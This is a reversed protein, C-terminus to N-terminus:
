IVGSGRKILDIKAGLDTISKNLSGLYSLNHFFYKPNQYIFQEYKINYIDNSKLINLIFNQCNTMRSDYKFYNIGMNKYTNNLLDILLIKKDLLDINIIQIKVKDFSRLSFSYNYYEILSLVKINIRENKEILLKVGNDLIVLMYLHYIDDYPSKDLNKLFVGMSLVNLSQKLIKEVPKRAVYMEVIYNDKYLNLLYQQELNYNDIGYILQRLFNNM